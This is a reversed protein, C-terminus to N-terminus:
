WYYLRKQFKPDFVLFYNPPSQGIDRGFNSFGLYSQLSQDKDTFDNVRGQPVRVEHWLAGYGCGM